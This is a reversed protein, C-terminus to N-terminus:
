RNGGMESDPSCFPRLRASGPDAWVEFVYGADICPVGLSELQLLVNPKGVGAGLLVVDVKGVYPRVDIVDFLARRPSIAHWLVQTSGERLLGETIRRRKAGDAGNIVLVRGGIIEARRAGTLAAYVFYFPVYNSAHIHISERSLWHRLAPFYREQFPTSGYSLHMALIGQQSVFRIGDAFRVRGREWEDRSYHGSHYFGAAGARFPRRLVAASVMEVRAAVRARISAGPNAPQPGVAFLFEGDSMRCVPLFHKARARILREVFEDFWSACDREEVAFTLAGPPCQSEFGRVHLPISVPLVSFDPGLPPPAVNM